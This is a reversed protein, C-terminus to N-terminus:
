EEDKENPLTAIAADALSPAAKRAPQERDGGYYYSSYASKGRQYSTSQKYKVQNMVSGIVKARGRRLIEEVMGITDRDVQANFSCIVGDVMSLLVHTDSVPLLPATDFVIQDYMESLMTVLPMAEPRSLLESPRGIPLGAPLVDLNEVDTKKIASAVDTTNLILEAFGPTEPVNFIRHIDPKRMDADILLVRRGAKALSIALNVALSTKGDGPAPSTVCITRYQKDPHGFLLQTRILRFEEAILNRAHEGKARKLESIRPIMGLMPAGLLPEIDRPHRLRKDFKDAVLALFIGLFLGGIVSAAQVKVRKDDTPKQPIDSREAVTIIADPNSKLDQDIGVLQKWLADRQEQVRALTANLQELKLVEVAITRHEEKMEGLKANYENEQALALNLVEQAEQAKSTVILSQEEKVKAEIAGAIENDRKTVQEEARKMRTKALIVDRNEETKGFEGKQQAYTAYASVQEAIAAQLLSDKGREEEIRKKLDLQLQAHLAREDPAAKYKALEAKAAMARYQAESRKFQLGQYEAAIGAKRASQLDFDNKQMLEAKTKNLREIYAEQEAVQERLKRSRVGDRGMVREACHEVFADAFANVVAAAVFPDAKETHISILEPTSKVQVADCIGRLKNAVMKQVAPDNLDLGRLWPLAQQLEPKAAAKLSIEPKTLLEMHTRVIDAPDSAVVNRQQQASQVLTYLVLSETEYTPAVLRNAALIGGGGVVLAVLLVLWWRRLVAGLINIGAPKAAAVGGGGMYPLVQSSGIDIVQIMAPGNPTNITGMPLSNQMRQIADSPVNNKRGNM